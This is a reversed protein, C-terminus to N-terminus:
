QSLSTIYHHKTSDKELAEFAALRAPTGIDYLPVTCAYGYLRGDTLQPFIDRELSCPASDPIDDILHRQVAYIGANLFSGSQKEQFTRIRGCADMTVGGADTRGNSPIVAMTAVAQRNHHATLFAHLDIRCLSDGNLVLITPTTLLSGCARLAGATGLPTQEQSIIAECDTRRSVHQAIWDGHHGTCFVIRRLGYSLVHDVVLDLFPRGNILAMPKPRDQVVPRLRNGLGGCLIVVNTMAHQMLRRGEEM